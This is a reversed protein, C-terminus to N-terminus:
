SVRKSRGAALKCCAPACHRTVRGQKGGKAWRGAGQGVCLARTSVRDGEVGGCVELPQKNPMAAKITALARALSAPQVLDPVAEIIADPNPLSSLVQRVQVRNLDTPRFCPTPLQEPLGICLSLSLRLSRM